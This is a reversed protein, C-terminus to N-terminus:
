VEVRDLHSPQFYVGHKEGVFGVLVYWRNSAIVKGVRGALLKKEAVVNGSIQRVRVTTGVPFEPHPNPRSMAPGPGIANLLSATLYALIISVTFAGLLLGASSWWNPRYVPLGCFTCEAANAGIRCSCRTCIRM